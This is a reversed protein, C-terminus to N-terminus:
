VKKGRKSFVKKLKNNLEEDTTDGKVNVTDVGDKNEGDLIIFQSTGGQLAEHFDSPVNLILFNLKDFNIRDKTAEFMEHRLLIRKLDSGYSETLWEDMKKVAATEDAAKGCMTASIAVSDMTAVNVKKAFLDQLLNNIQTQTNMTFSFERKSKKFIENILQKDLALYDLTVVDKMESLSSLDKAVNNTVSLIRSNKLIAEVIQPELVELKQKASNKAGQASYQVTSSTIADVNVNAIARLDNVRKRLEQLEM